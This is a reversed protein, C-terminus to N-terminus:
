HRFYIIVQIGHFISSWTEKGTVWPVLKEKHWALPIIVDQHGLHEEKAVKHCKLYYSYFGFRGANNDEELLRVKV